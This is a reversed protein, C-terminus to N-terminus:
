QERRGFLEEEIQDLWQEYQRRQPECGCVPDICRDHCALLEAELLVDVMERYEDRTM